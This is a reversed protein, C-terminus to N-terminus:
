CAGNKKLKKLERRYRREHFWAISGGLLFGILLMLLLVLYTPVTLEFPLPYLYLTVDNLNSVCFLIIVGIIPWFILRSLWKETKKGM